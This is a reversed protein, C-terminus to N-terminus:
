PAATGPQHAFAKLKRNFLGTMRQSVALPKPTDRMHIRLGGTSPQEVRLLHALNVIANRHVRTFQERPLEREWQKMSKRLLASGQKGWHVWTYEGCATVTKIESIQVLHTGNATRVMLRAPTRSLGAGAVGMEGPPLSWGGEKVAAGPNEQFRPQQEAQRRLRAKIAGLLEDLDVPKALFDDAGLNMGQRQSARSSHATLFVVPLGGLGPEARLAGLVDFGHMGPMDLDCVVLDPHSGKALALGELGDQATVVDFGEQSLFAGMVMLIKSDDDVLLLKKM